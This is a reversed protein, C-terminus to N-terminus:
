GNYEGKLLDNPTCNFYECIRLLQTITPLRDGNEFRSITCQPINVEVAFETQSMVKKVAKEKKKSNVWKKEEIYFIKERYKKLNDKFAM